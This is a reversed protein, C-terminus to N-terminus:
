ESVVVGLNRLHSILIEAPEKQGNFLVGNIGHKCATEINIDKDDIFVIEQPEFGTGSILKEYSEASPKRCKTFISIFRNKEPILKMFDANKFGEYIEPNTNSLMFQPMATAVASLIGIVKPLIQIRGNHDRLLYTQATRIAEVNKETPEIDFGYQCAIRWFEGSSIHSSTYSQLYNKEEDGPSLTRLSSNIEPVIPVSLMKKYHKGRSQDGALPPTIGLLEYAINYCVNWDPATLVSENDWVVAKIKCNNTLEAKM